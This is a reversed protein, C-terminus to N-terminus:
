QPQVNAKRAAETRAASVKDLEMGLEAPTSATAEIRLPRLREVTAPAKAFAATAQVLRDVVKQPVGPPAFVSMFFPSLLDFGQERISPVNPYEPDREPSLVALARVKGEKLATGASPFTAFSAQLEGSLLGQLQPAVGAYPVLTMNTGTQQMLRFGDLHSPTNPIIGINVKGPNAKAYAIMEGVTKPPFSISSVIVIWSRATMSVPALDKKYDFTVGKTFVPYLTMSDASMLLTYGDPDARKVADAAILGGAGVRNEVVVPQGLQKEAVSAWLRTVLDLTGGTPAGALIRIPKSPYEGTQAAAPTALLAGWTALALLASLTRTIM